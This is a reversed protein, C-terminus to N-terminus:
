HADTLNQKLTVKIVTGEPVQEDKAADQSIVTGSGEISINLNKEKLTNSAQSANMGKLDPVTVSTAVDNGEGYLVVVSNKSLSVGPKPTQDVVLTNNADGNVYTKTSFGSNKLIKEAESVTKNRVDPVVILNDSSSSDSSNENSPIGLYPLIESLMQSVVPGALQGGQHNSKPPDYLTLLLVVQTDEVPSIAVYSAVYGEETKNYVPESTGTKGGISYGSVAAHKGTGITVVSEMMSKVEQATEKSIVQRVQTVPIESVSGSDTNTVQKVIRPKMLVGDNAVCAIATAMQLPTVNLRQGFSMTALEVPGVKDLKQFISSQEGYLGSNTSDFLGFAEYYKYLTPAGIRKGLQMFAPNCSNCLAQRLSQVGHPNARWCSIKLPQSASSDEFEEYGKCYFDNSKDTTTINEELAVSATIVKFVSGPEYTEAVSKNAWMKYLSESKEESSLSNYTEALTSNPTYPSNLNYDPYCAMGLIDGNKPNIVIVNGGKKCDNDEVAQKLYKEIITQINLDITLTLDSGNEASIYTEEANPIEEQNSGKSSVIKGPTGTLISDWKSEVGSLGQNDSGCFGIVNSAVTNYPYYRKTDEDINIGVSIKNDEMWKKLTDVKEQEVKKAITEVQSSSNVKELVEDYNLEFIESLGKAIKEKFEKTEDNSNKVLKNPNITITDVQASIALAKGTSDYINGRKPSIIQNITQQNYALEKLYNGQVFQLFGIRVILLLLILIVVILTVRLKKYHMLNKSNFSTKMKIINSDNSFDKSLSNKNKKYNNNNKEM